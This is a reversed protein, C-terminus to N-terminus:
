NFAAAARRIRDTVASWQSAEPPHEIYLAEFSQNDVKRLLSYLDHAFRVPDDSLSIWTLSPDLWDPAQGFGLVAAKQETGNRATLLLQERDLLHLPTTPAYHAKLSGSVRPVESSQSGAVALSCNLVNELQAVSIHGPRLVSITSAGAAGVRSLDVITSEIGVEAAGGDLVTLPSTGVDQFEARVHQARTPSIRGFRNASPAAVGGHNGKLRSFESLLAQAVPHSPCRIGVSDQGGAVEAPIHAARPLILTLPGPWFCEILRWAEPPISHAWYYLDAGPAVHVIVPHNSPRGKAAYIKQIASVNEADAGLGYVTETPFAVLEGALLQRAAAQIETFDPSSSTTSNM